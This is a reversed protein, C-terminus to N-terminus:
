LINYVREGGGRPLPPAGIPRLPKFLRSIIELRYKISDGFM